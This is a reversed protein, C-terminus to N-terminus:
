AQAVGFAATGHAWLCDVDPCDQGPGLRGEEMAEPPFRGTEQFAIDALFLGVPDERRKVAQRGAVKEVPNDPFQAQRHLHAALLVKGPGASADEDGVM